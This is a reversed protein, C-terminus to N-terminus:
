IFVIPVYGMGFSSDDVPPSASFVACDGGRKFDKEQMHVYLRIVSLHDWILPVSLLPTQGKPAYTTVAPALLYFGAEDIFM